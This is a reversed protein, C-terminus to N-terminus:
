GVHSPIGTASASIGDLRSQVFFTRAEYLCFTIFIICVLLTAPMLLGNIIEKILFTEKSSLTGKVCFFYKSETLQLIQFLYIHQM